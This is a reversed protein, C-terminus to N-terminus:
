FLDRYDVASTVSSLGRWCHCTAYCMMNEKKYNKSDVQNIVQKLILGSLFFQLQEEDIM